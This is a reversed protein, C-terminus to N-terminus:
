LNNRIFQIKKFTLLIKELKDYRPVPPMYRLVECVFADLYKLSDIEDVDFSSEDDIEDIEEILQHQHEPHLALCYAAFALATSTTDFGCILFSIIQDIAENLSQLNRKESEDIKDLMLQLFDNRKTGKNKRENSISEMIKFLNHWANREHDFNSHRKAISSFFLSFISRVVSKRRLIQKVSKVLDNDPNQLSNIQGGMACTVIVDMIFAAFYKRVDVSKGNIAITEFNSLLYKVKSEILPIMLKIHNKTFASSIVSRVRKWPKYRLGFLANSAIQNGGDLEFKCNPFRHFDTVLVQRVLKPESVMLAPTLGEYIGFIKGHKLCVKLDSLFM